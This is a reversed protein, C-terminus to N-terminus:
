RIHSPLVPWLWLPRAKSHVFKWKVMPSHDNCVYTTCADAHVHAESVRLTRIALPIHPSSPTGVSGNSLIIATSTPRRRAFPLYILPNANIHRGVTSNINVHNPASARWGEGKEEETGYGRESCADVVDRFERNWGWSGEERVGFVPQRKRVVQSYGRM